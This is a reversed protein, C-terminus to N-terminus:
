VFECVGATIQGKLQKLGFQKVLSWDHSVVLACTNSKTVIEHFLSFLKQAHIPDLAATPEDALLLVPEHSMARIFAVRQREGISLTAPNQNLLGGIGLQEIASDIHATSGKKNLIKRPLYINEKVNLYPILGGNQLVFGTKEARLQAITKEALEPWQRLDTPPKTDNGNLTYHTIKQPKLLLGISELLTSKGCGSAGTIAVMEGRKLELHPLTVTHAELGTGRTIILDKILLM